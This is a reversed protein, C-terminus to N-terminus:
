GDDKSSSSNAEEKQRRRLENELEELTMQEIQSERAQWLKEAKKRKRRIRSDTILRALLLIILILLFLLFACGAIFVEKFHSRAYKALYHPAETLFDILQKAIDTWSAGSSTSANADDTQLTDDGSSGTQFLDNGSGSTQLLDDDSGSTQLLGNGSGGTQLLDDGSSGSQLPGNDTENSQPINNGNSANAQPVTNGDSDGTQTVTNGDSGGTQTVTNGDSGGTQTVTNGDSTGSQTVTNGDAGDAQATNGESTGTGFRPDAGSVSLQDFGYAFLKTTDQCAAATDSAGLLVSVLHVDENDGFTILNDTGDSSLSEKGGSCWDQFYGSEQGLMPHENALQRSGDTLNTAPIAYDTLQCIERFAENQYAAQMILAFDSACTYSQTNGSDGPASLQTHECGLEQARENMRVTFAAPSGSIYEAVGIAVDEASDLLIACAADYLTIEEGPQLGLRPQGDPATYLIESFSATQNLNYNEALLLVTMFNELSGADHAITSGENYLLTGTDLDMVVASASSLQLAIGSDEAEGSVMLPPLLLSLSLTLFFQSNFKWTKM